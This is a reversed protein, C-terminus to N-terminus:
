SIGLRRAAALLGAVTKSDRFGGRDIEALAEPWTMTVVDLFEDDDAEASQESLGEALFCRQLESTYGPSVYGEYLLTVRDARYGIEEEIERRATTEADEGPDLTGAPLELLEEGTAHRFQRVFFVRDDKVAIVAVSGKHSVVERKGEKGNPLRVDDVHLDLTKGEYVTHREILRETNQTEKDSQSM